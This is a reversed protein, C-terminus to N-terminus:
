VLWVGPDGGGEATVKRLGWAALTVAVLPSIDASSRRRGWAKGADGVDRTVAGALAADLDPQGRHRLSRSDMVAEYFGGFAAAVDRALPKTVAVRAAELDPIILGEHGTADVVVACPDHKAVREVLWPVVWSTGRRYDAVEVHLLGDPRFGALGVAAAAQDHSFVAAMAVPMRPESGRDALRGWVGLPIVERRDAPEDWWGMRERAFEAPPLARREAAVYEATLGTGNPRRRGFAPNARRWNAPDDCGCGPVDLRHDCEAGRACVREPPDSCWELWALRPDGARGRDRVGRLVDSDELGASAGYLVQPDPQASMTPLLAGMHAARLFMGEDLIVKSGSLGRGGGKTRTKFIVRSGSTLEIAEDGNGRYVSRIERRLYDSGTVLEELDRFSEKVTDWEHASWVILRERTIFLWGLAAQKLVGTKLNQRCAVVAAEFAASRGGRQAFVADLILAQEPDPAFEALRALDAVEPGLTWDYAPVHCFAPEVLLGSTSM